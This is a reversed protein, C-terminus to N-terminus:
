YQGTRRLLSQFRPHSRMGDNWPESALYAVANSGEEYSREMWDVATEIDGLSAYVAGITGPPLYQRDPVALLERLVARAEETRGARAYVNALMTLSSPSRNTLRLLEDIQAFAEHYRGASALSNALRRRAQPYAPDLAVTRTLHEIAEQYRRASYLVWGINTNVILSFPDLDRAAYVQRLSEDFRGRSMLLNAYWVRALANSPNLEIARLFAKEAEAWQWQYHRVYGLAAHAESSNADIQLARIAEAAARPRYERPSGVGVLETGLQNYCDALAAHAPAYAQDLNIAQSFHQIARELSAATRLNWEYRGKLYAEYVEPNITPVMTLRESAGPRLASRVAGALGRVADAQLVLVERTSREFTKSWIVVGSEPEILRLDLRILGSSRRVSGKVIADAGLERGIDRTAKGSGGAQMTSTRSIVRLDGVAGLQAILADTVGAAYFDEAPQGTSNELPLLAITEFSRTSRNSIAIAASIALAVLAAAIAIRLGKRRNPIMLRGVVPWARRAVIAQLAARVDGARQYREGPNKMLCREVVLRLALPVGKAMPKPSEGLIASSTEFATRGSFPLYGNVLQYLLVGISWVDSRADGRGGLLVEPAMHTLTGAPGHESVTTSQSVQDNQPLSRALGFDLVIARGGHEIVVNASKLDRHVVGRGHAHELAAAVQIGYRLAEELPLKGERQCESLTRGDLLEMVIFPVGSSEGVEYVTCINPHKLSSAHRAEKLLRLTADGSAADAPVTKIAVERGLRTDRARYVEGMGGAGIFDTIEYGGVQTGRQLRAAPSWGGFVGAGLLGAAPTECFSGADHDSELLAQVERAVDQDGACAKAVFDCRDADPLDLADLFVAKVREWRDNAPHRSGTPLTSPAM